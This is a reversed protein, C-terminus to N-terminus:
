PGKAKRERDLDRAMALADPNLEIVSNLIPGHRDIAEIRALYKKALSLATFKGSEMASQLQAITAEDLEFPKVRLVHEPANASNGLVPYSITAASGLAALRLFDRRKMTYARCPAPQRARRLSIQLSLRRFPQKEELADFM